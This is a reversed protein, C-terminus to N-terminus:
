QAPKPTVIRSKLFAVLGDADDTGVKLTGSKLRFVVCDFGWVNWVGYGFGGHIGWGDLFTTRGEEVEIIDDYRIWKRFLPIPGFRLALQDGEDEVTLHALSWGVVFVVVSAVPFIIRLAPIPLFLTAILFVVAIASCLLASPGTQTHRYTTAESMNAEDEEL